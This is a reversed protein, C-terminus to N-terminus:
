LYWLDVGQAMLSRVNRMVNEPCASLWAWTECRHPERVYAVQDQPADVVVYLTIFDDASPDGHDHTFPGAFRVASQKGIVLGTEEQLERLACGIISEDLHLKGSPLGWQGAGYTNLRKGFLVEPVGDRVRRVVCAVGVRVRRGTAERLREVLVTNIVQLADRQDTLHELYRIARFLVKVDDAGLATTGSTALRSLAAMAQEPPVPYAAAPLHAWPKGLARMRIREIEDDVSMISADHLILAMGHASGTPGCRAHNAVAAARDLEGRAAMAGAIEYLRAIAARQHLDSWPATEDVGVHIDASLDRDKDSGWGTM